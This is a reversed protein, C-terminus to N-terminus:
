PRARGVGLEVRVVPDIVVDANRLPGEHFLRVRGDRAVVVTTPFTRVEYARM